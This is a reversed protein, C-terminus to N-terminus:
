RSITLRTSSSVKNGNILIQYVGAALQSVDLQLTAAKDVQKFVQSQVLKGAADLIFVSLEAEKEDLNMRISAVSNAPNPYMSFVQGSTNSIGASVDKVTIEMTQVDMCTVNSAIFNVVYTGPLTYIHTPSLVGSVISGDGFDWTIENAGQTQAQFQIAGQNLDVVTASASIIASVPAGQAVEVAQHIHTGFANSLLVTYIGGDLNSITANGSFNEASAVQVGQANQVVYSWTTASPSQIMLEGDNQVCSETSTTFTVGPKFHLRFRFKDVEPTFVYSYSESTRLNTFTGL